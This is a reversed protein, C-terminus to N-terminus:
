CSCPENKCIDIMKLTTWSTWGKHTIMNYKFMKLCFYAM